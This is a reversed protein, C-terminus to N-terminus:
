LLSVADMVQHYDRTVAMMLEQVSEGSENEGPKNEAPKNKRLKECLAGASAALNSLALNLSLGKLTHVGIFAKSYDRKEMAEALQRFSEDQAFKKLYKRIQKDSGLRKLADEYNGNILRYCEKIAMIQRYSPTLVDYMEKRRVLSNYCQQM